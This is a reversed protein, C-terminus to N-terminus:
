HQNLLRQRMPAAVRKAEDQKIRRIRKGMRKKGALQAGAQGGRVM